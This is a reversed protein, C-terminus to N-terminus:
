YIIESIKSMKLISRTKKQHSSPLPWLRLGLIIIYLPKWPHLKIHHYLINCLIFIEIRKLKIRVIHMHITVALKRKNVTPHNSVLLGVGLKGDLIM